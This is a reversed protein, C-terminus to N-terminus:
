VRRRRLIPLVAHVAIDAQARAKRLWESLVEAQQEAMLRRRIEPAADGLPMSRGPEFASVRVVHFGYDSKVVPGIEGPELAFVADDFAPTHRGRAFVGLDGGPPDFVM